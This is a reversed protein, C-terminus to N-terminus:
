RRTRASSTAAPDRRGRCTRCSRRRRTSRASAAAPPQAGAVNGSPSLDTFHYGDQALLAKLLRLSHFRHEECCASPASTASASAADPSRGSPTSPSTRASSRTPTSCCSARTPRTSPGRCGSRASGLGRRARARQPPRAPVRGRAGADAQTIPALAVAMSLAVAERDAEGAPHARRPGHRDRRAAGADDAHHVTNRPQLWDTAARRAAIARSSTATAAAVSRPSRAAPRLRRVPVGGRHRARRAVRELVEKADVLEERSRPATSRGGRGTACATAASADHRGGCARARRSGDLYGPAGLRGAVVFFTATLGRQGCRPCRSPSTPSTATTSRSASTTAGPSPTSCPPSGSARSGSPPRAPTSDQRSPPGVGHFTLNITRQHM